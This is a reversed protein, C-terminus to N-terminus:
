LATAVALANEGRWEYLHVDGGAACGCGGGCSAPNVTHALRGRKVLLELMGEVAAPQSGIQRAVMSVSLPGSQKILQEIRKLM